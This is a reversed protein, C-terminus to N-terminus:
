ATQQALKGSNLRGSGLRSINLIKPKLDQQKYYSLFNPWEEKLGFTKPIQRGQASEVAYYIKEQEERHQQDHDKKRGICASVREINKSITYERGKTTSEIRGTKPDNEPNHKSIDTKDQQIHSSTLQPDQEAM